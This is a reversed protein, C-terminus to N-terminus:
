RRGEKQDHTQLWRVLKEPYERQLRDYRAKLCAPCRYQFGEATIPQHCDLCTGPDPPHGNTETALTGPTVRGPASQRHRPENVNVSMFPTLTLTTWEVALPEPEVRGPTDASSRRQRYAKVRCATSCYLTAQGSVQLIAQGCVVCTHLAKECNQHPNEPEDSTRSTHGVPTHLAKKCNQHPNEPNGPDDNVVDNVNVSMYPTLTLSSEGHDDPSYEPTGPLSWLHERGVTGAVVVRGLGKLRSLKAKVSKPNAELHDAIEQATSPGREGLAALIRSELSAREVLPPSTLAVTTVTVWGEEFSLKVGIEGQLPGLNNKVNRIVVWAEGPQSEVLESQWVVRSLSYKYVSGFPTKDRYDQGPQLKAQHDVLLLGGPNLSRLGRFVQVVAQSKELDATAAAGISDVIVLGNPNTAVWDLLVAEADQPSLDALQVYEFAEPVDPLGLGIALRRARRHQEAEDLEFDAYLVPRQVTPKGLWPAGAAVALGALMALYSKASGGSGYLLAPLGEPIFDAVLWPRLPPASRGTFRVPKRVRQGDGGAPSQHHGNGVILTPNPSWKSSSRAISVLEVDPLPVECRRNMMRLVALVEDPELQGEGRLWGAVKTLITNRSGIPITRELKLTEGLLERRHGNDSPWPLDAPELELAEGPNFSLWRYDGTADPKYAKTPPVYVLGGVGKVDGWPHKATPAPQRSLCYVHLGGRQSEAVLGKWWGPHEQNLWDEAATRHQREIDWVWWYFGTLPDRHGLVIGLGDAREWPWQEVEEPTPLRHQYSDWSVLPRGQRIPIAPLGLSQYETALKRLTSVSTTM